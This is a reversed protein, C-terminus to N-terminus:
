LPLNNPPEGRRSEIRGFTPTESVGGPFHYITALEETNLVFPKSRRFPPYFYGRNRYARLMKRKMRPVRTGFIDQWPYDVSTTNNPKFGNLDVSSFQKFQAIVGVFNIPKFEDKKAIYITRIGCDFGLKSVSRAIAKAVTEETSSLATPIKAEGEKPKIDRKMLKNILVEGEDKWDGMTGDKKKYRKKAGQILIQIWIQHGQEISGLFEIVPTIPDNKFEEKPDRELGYDMYTKIPYPDPKTLIFEGGWMEYESDPGTYDASYVYDAVDYIEVDPYQSYINSEILKRFFSPTRIFFHIEGGSSVLELSFWARVFGQLVRHYLKKDSTQHFAGLVVEMALPSKLIERPLKIELTVWEISQIYTILTYYSYASWLGFALLPPLWYWGYHFASQITDGLVGSLFQSFLHLILAVAEM